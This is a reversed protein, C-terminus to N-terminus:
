DKKDRERRRQFAAVSGHKHVKRELRKLETASAELPMLPERVVVTSKGDSGFSRTRIKIVGGPARGTISVFGVGGFSLDVWASNWSHEPDNGDFVFEEEVMLHEKSSKGKAREVSTPTVMENLRKSFFTTFLLHGEGQVYDIQGFDGFMLSKGPILRYIKPIVQRHAQLLNLEEKSLVNYLRDKALLGPTDYLCRGGDHGLAIPILGVTTGHLGSVTTKLQKPGGYMKIMKNLLSSKGVNTRGCLFVDKKFNNARSNMDRVLDIVGKGSESSTLHVSVPLLGRKQAQRSLWMRLRFDRGGDPLLDHKNGVLIVPNAGSVTKAFDEPLTSDVDMLDM